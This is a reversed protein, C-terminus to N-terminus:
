GHQKIWQQLPIISGWAQIQQPWRDAFHQQAWSWLTQAQAQSFASRYKQIANLLIPTFGDSDNQSQTLEGILGAWDLERLGAPVQKLMLKGALSNIHIGHEVLESQLQEARQQQPQSVMVSIPMLLPQSVLQQHRLDHEFKYSQLQELNLLYLQDLNVLLYHDEVLLWPIIQHTDAPTVLQQYHQAARSLQRQSNRPNNGSNAQAPYHTGPQSQYVPQLSNIYGHSPESPLPKYEDNDDSIQETDESRQALVDVMARYIFDHVLRSQHFRVEHKAPHVNVDLQQPDITLYLVYEPLTDSAYCEHCAQRIAHNVLKDRMVRGNIYFYHNQQVHSQNKEQAAQPNVWGSLHMDQYDSKVTYLQQTFDNGCVNALRKRQQEPQSAKSYRRVTKGNHKLIFQVNFHSLAIRKVVEDIHMFETKEARLFKRRAPTNFFLDHVDISSGDPHAAPTINVRMDRGETQAQWANTQNAPKSTLTLRSVSSISALAEGRFGLSAIHELDDLSEIKSTAHRSLALELEQKAIGCGNDRICIRKHGGKEISIEIESAGADLSNEILEKVVSAPREVVEGAAIQNALMAPLLKIPM